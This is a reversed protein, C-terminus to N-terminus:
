RYLEKRMGLTKVLEVIASLGGFTVALQKEALELKTTAPRIM